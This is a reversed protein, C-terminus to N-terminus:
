GRARGFFWLPFLPASRGAELLVQVADIWGEKVAFVLLTEGSTLASNVDVYRVLRALGGRDHEEVARRVMYEQLQSSRADQERGRLSLQAQGQGM